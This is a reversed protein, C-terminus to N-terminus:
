IDTLDSPTTKDRNNAVLVQRGTECYELRVDAQLSMISISIDRFLTKQRRITLDSSSNTFEIDDKGGQEEIM